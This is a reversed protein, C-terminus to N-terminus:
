QSSQNQKQVDICNLQYSFVDKAHSL